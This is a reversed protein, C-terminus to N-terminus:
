VLPELEDLLAAVSSRVAEHGTHLGLAREMIMIQAAATLFVAIAEAPPLHEAAGREVVAAAVVATLMSRFREAQETIADRM